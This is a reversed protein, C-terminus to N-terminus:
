FFRDGAFDKGHSREKEEETDEAGRRNTLILSRVELNGNLPESNVILM